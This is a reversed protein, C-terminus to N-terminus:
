AGCTGPATKDPDCFGNDTISDVLLHDAGVTVRGTDGRKPAPLGTQKWGSHVTASVVQTTAVWTGGVRRPNSLQMVLDIIPDCCGDGVHEELRGSASVNVFRTHGVWEGVFPKFSV